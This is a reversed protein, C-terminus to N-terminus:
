LGFFSGIRRAFGKIGREPPLPQVPLPSPADQFRVVKPKTGPSQSIRRNRLSGVYAVLSEGGTDIGNDALRSSLKTQERSAPTERLYALLTPKGPGPQNLLSHVWAWSERYDGPTMQRIETLGELRALNPKWQSTLEAPLKALHAQAGTDAPSTVEFYEALGEDLWLPLSGFRLNLLAHAAEHRLDEELKPGMFTYVVRSEGQALFFARRSPLEPYYFKLFHSFSDRDNLIYIEITPDDESVELDLSKAMDHELSKLCLVVPSDSKLEFDSSFLFPGSRLRHNTPVLQKGREGLTSCGAAWLVFLLGALLAQISTRNAQTARRQNCNM